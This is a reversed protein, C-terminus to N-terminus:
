KGTVPLSRRLLFQLFGAVIFQLTLSKGLLGIFKGQVYTCVHVVSPVLVPFCILFFSISFSLLCPRQRSLLQLTCNIEIGPVLCGSIDLLFPFSFVTMNDNIIM